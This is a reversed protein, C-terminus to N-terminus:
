SQVNSSVYLGFASPALYQGPGPLNVKKSVFSRNEKNFMLCGSNPYKSNFFVGKPNIQHRMDCIMECNQVEKPKQVVESKPKVPPFRISKVNKFQSNHLPKDIQFSNPIKYDAPGTKSSYKNIEKLRSKLTTCKQNKQLIPDYNGPGPVFENNKPNLSSSCLKVLDRSMGFSFGSKKVISEEITLNKPFYANAGPINKTEQTFNYKEGKGLSTGQHGKYVKENIDYFGASCYQHISRKDFHSTHPFSFQQKTPSLNLPSDHIKKGNAICKLYAHATNLDKKKM